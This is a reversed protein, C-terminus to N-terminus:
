KKSLQDDVIDIMYVSRCTYVYLLIKLWVNQSNQGGELYYGSVFSVENSLGLICSNFDLIFNPTADNQLNAVGM